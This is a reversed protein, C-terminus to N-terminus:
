RGMEARVWPRSPRAVVREYLNEVGRVTEAATFRKLVNRHAIEVLRSRLETSAFLTAPQGALLTPDGPAILIGDVGNEFIELAGRLNTSVFPRRLCMSKIGVRGCPAPERSPHVVVDMAGVYSAPADRFGTFVVHGRLGLENIMSEWEADFRPDIGVAGVFLSSEQTCRRRLLATAREVVDQGKWRKINAAMGIVPDDIGIGLWARVYCANRAPRVFETDVGKYVVVARPGRSARDCSRRVFPPRSGACHLRIVLSGCHRSANRPVRDLLIRDPMCGVAGQFAIALHISYHHRPLRM